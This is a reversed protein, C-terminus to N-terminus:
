EVRREVAARVFAQLTDLQLPKFHVAIGHDAMSRILAPDTDGTVLIAPLDQKGFKKRVSAVAEFGTHGQGLRYDSIIVDPVQAALQQLLSPTDAAAVVEHGAGQLALAMARLVRTDDDIVAMRLPRPLTNLPAVAVREQLPAKAPPIEIAFMSGRGPRSRLHIKLGLLEAMKSTIALGLGSGRTRGTQNLQQFEEFIVAYKDAPIGEGTDWVELWWTAGHRRCTILVGGHHTYRIANTVLNGIMRNLLKPDTHVTAGSPRMRLTLGKIGAKVSHIALHSALLADVAFDVPAPKVVGADLKSVDLLDKLLESLSAVCNGISEVLEKQSPQAQKGLVGVYLSLASLPQRLDHSATALFHSKAHNAKEAVETAAQLALHSRKLDTIDQRAVIAGQHEDGLPTITISSWRPQPSADLPYELHFQHLAGKLVAHLGHAANQVYDGLPASPPPKGEELFNIGEAAPFLPDQLPPARGDRQEPYNVALVRGQPNIVALDLPLANLISRNLTDRELLLKARLREDHMQKRATIDRVVGTFHTLAGHADHVPSITMDNWFTSGDKRYNILEGSFGLGSQLAKDLSEIVIPDTLAGRLFHCTRGLVEKKSYGTISTFANNVLLIRQRADTIIIGQSIAKLAADSIRAVSERAKVQTIDVMFVFFGQVVGHVKHAMYQVWADRKLGNHQVIQREFQQNEGLLVAQIYPANQAYM